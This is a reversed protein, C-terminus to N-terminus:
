LTISEWISAWPMTKIIHVMQFRKKMSISSKLSGPMKNPIIRIEKITENKLISPINFNIKTRNPYKTSMPVDFTLNDKIRVFGIILSFHADKNLYNPLKVKENYIGTRCFRPDPFTSVV